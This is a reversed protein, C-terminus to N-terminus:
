GNKYRNIIQAIAEADAESTGRGIPLSVVSRALRQAVPLDVNGYTPAYCPQLHIPTPYHIATEVSNEAMYSRFDDREDPNVTIVFQHWVHASPEPPLTPLGIRPNTINNIYTEAIHRRQTNEEDLHPLKVRLMAAQIPDLRSNVGAYVNHYPRDTGYNRLMAVTRALESDNTVVAGADGLAGVNKTPYFSIAAANGLTGAHRGDISAGIAQACDEIVLLEPPLNSPIECIRGYLHVPMVARTRDSLPLRAWDLNHTFPNVDAFVVKLGCDTVALASAVFSNTPVIVEDGHQLAGLEMYARLILRLADLGNGVGVAHTAGLASALEREFLETEPGGIYRGSDIVRCAADKLESLFPENVTALDLFPYKM